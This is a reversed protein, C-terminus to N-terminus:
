ENIPNCTLATVIRPFLSLVTNGPINFEESNGFHVKPLALSSNTFLPCTNPSLKNETFTSMIM